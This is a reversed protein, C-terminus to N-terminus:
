FFNRITCPVKTYKQSLYITNINLPKGFVFSHTPNDSNIITCYDIIVLIRKVKRPNLENPLLIHDPHKFEVVKLKSSKFKDNSTIIDLASDINTIQKQQEFLTRIQNISLGKQFSKIIVEYQKQSLSTSVFVIRDLDFYNELLLKFLLMTKGSGSNGIILM